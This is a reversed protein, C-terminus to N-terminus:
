LLIGQALRSKITECFEKEKEIIICRRRISKAAVATTGSGGFPDFIIDGEKSSVQILISCLEVSKETPHGFEPAKVDVMKVKRYFDYPLNNDWYCGEGRMFLIHETDPLYKNNKAPIPNRKGMTLLDWSRVEAEHMWNLFERLCNKSTWFYGHQCLAWLSPMFKIPSFTDIGLANINKLGERQSHIGGGGTRIEYPPDTLILDVKSLKPIIDLCDGNALCSFEDNYYWDVGPPPLNTNKESM